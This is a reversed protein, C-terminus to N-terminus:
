VEANQKWEKISEDHGLRLIDVATRSSKIGLSVGMHNMTQIVKQSCGQKWLEIGMCTQIFNNTERRETFLLAMSLAMGIRQDLMAKNDRSLM